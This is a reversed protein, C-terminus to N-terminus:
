DWVELARARAGGAGELIRGKAPPIDEERARGGAHINSALRLQKSMTPSLGRQPRRAAEARIAGYLADSHRNYTKM